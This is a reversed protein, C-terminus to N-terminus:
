EYLSMLGFITGSVLNRSMGIETGAYASNFEPYPGLEFSFAEKGTDWDLAEWVWINNKLGVDYLLNSAASMAPIGNPFSVDRNAWQSYLEKKVPDWVFKEAGRPAFKSIGSFAIGLTKSSTKARLQNSVVVVGYGRVVLSQDTTSEDTEPNGFTVKVQAAIRKDKTGPLQKWNDPIKDRWFLVIHMVRDGDTIVVFKDQDGTGMLTPTTGSGKGLRIGGLYSPGTDYNATWGGENEDLTLSNGTWQVRYMKKSTVVYIGGEEDVDVAISNSIEEDTSFRFYYLHRFDRSLTFLLGRDTVAVLMGDYTINLGVIKEDSSILLSDPIKFTRLLKIKSYPDGTVSDSYAYIKQLKPVYFINDKDILTYAGSIGVDPNFVDTISAGYPLKVRDIYKLGHKSHAVKYVYMQDAGWIVREGDSYPGSFALTIAGPLGELHFFKGKSVDYPGAYPTSDQCYPNRHTMPWPSDALFPNVPPENGDDLYAPPYFYVKEDVSSCSSTYLIVLLLLLFIAIRKM